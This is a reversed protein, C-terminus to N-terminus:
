PNLNWAFGPAFCLRGIGPCTVAPGEAVILRLPEGIDPLVALRGTSTETPSGMWNVPATEPKAAPTVM